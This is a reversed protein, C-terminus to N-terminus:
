SGPCTVAGAPLAAAIERSAGASDVCWHANPNLPVSAAFAEVSSNCQVTTSAFSEMGAIIEAISDEQPVTATGCVIEYTLVKSEEISARKSVATLESILKAELGEDRATQLRPIITAALIGIIAIVVLLEILTFGAQKQM